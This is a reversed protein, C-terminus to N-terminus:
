STTEQGSQGDLQSRLSQIAEQRMEEAQSQLDAHLKAFEQEGLQQEVQAFISNILTVKAAVNIARFIEGAQYFAALAPVIAELNWFSQAQGELSLAQGWQDNITRLLNLAEDFLIVAQAHSGAAAAARGMYVLDGGLGLRDQIENHVDLAARFENFAAQYDQEAIHLNGLGQHLNAEGLRAHIERYIPLASEYARRAGDLDAVRV